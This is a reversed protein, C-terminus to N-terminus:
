CLGFRLLHNVVSLRRCSRGSCSSFLPQKPAVLVVWVRKSPKRRQMRGKEQSRELKSIADNLCKAIDLVGVVAGSDDTVPLHRFRNEVMTLMADTASSSMTVCSPNATMVDSVHTTSPPLDKAM